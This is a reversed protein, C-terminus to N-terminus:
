KLSQDKTVITLQAEAHVRVIDTVKLEGHGHPLATGSM